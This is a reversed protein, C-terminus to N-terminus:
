IDPPSITLLSEGGHPHPLCAVLSGMPDVARPADVHPKVVAPTRTFRFLVSM